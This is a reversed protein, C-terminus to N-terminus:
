LSSSILIVGRIESYNDACLANETEATKIKM